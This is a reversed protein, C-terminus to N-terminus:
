KVKRKIGLLKQMGERNQKVLVPKAGGAGTVATGNPGTGGGNLGNLTKGKAALISAVTPENTGKGDAGNVPRRKITLAEDKPEADAEAKGEDGDAVDSGAESDSYGDLGGLGNEGDVAKGKGKSSGAVASPAGNTGSPKAPIKAFYQAVLADDEAQEAQKRATEEATEREAHLAALLAEPDQNM